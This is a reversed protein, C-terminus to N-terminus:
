RVPNLRAGFIVKLEEDSTRCFFLFADKSEAIKHKRRLEAVSLPFNKAIVNAAMGGKGKKFDRYPQVQEIRFIRGPFSLDLHAATYLHTNQHLKYINFHSAVWRFAGAKLLAVDPDYLYTDPVGLKLAANTEEERRFSVRREVENLLVAHLTPTGEFGAEMLFLLEKCENKISLIHVERVHKLQELSLSIDLLPSTKVLLCRCRKLLEDQVSVINPECDELRFVKQTKVRRSPDGFATSFTGPPLALLHQVGDTCIFDMNMQGLVGANHQAIESLERNLECHLVYAAKRALFLSDAGFGGSLDIVREEPEILTAKYAATTTSSAQEISLAVPYYIGPTNYWEPLKLRAKQRSELQVALEASNVSPFPSKSLAVAAPSAKAHAQLYRQVEETLLEPNM